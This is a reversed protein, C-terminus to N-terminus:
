AKPATNAVPAVVPAPAPAAAKVTAEATAVDAAAKTWLNQAWAPKPLVFWGIVLGVAFGIALEFM